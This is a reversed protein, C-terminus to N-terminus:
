QSDERQNTVLSSETAPYEVTRVAEEILLRAISDIRNAPSHPGYVQATAYAGDALTALQDALLDPDRAGAGEALDRLRDRWRRKHSHAAEHIPNGQERFETSAGLFPCGHWSPESVMQAIHEFLAYLQLRPENQSALVKEVWGSHRQDMQKLYAVVLGEKSGFHRYMTTKVVGAAEAIADVGVSRIGERHFLAGAASLVQDRADGGRRLDSEGATM